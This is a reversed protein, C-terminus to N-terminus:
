KDGYTDISNKIKAVSKLKERIVKIDASVTDQNIGLEEAIDLNRWLRSYKFVFIERQRDSLNLSNLLKNFEDMTPISIVDEPKM